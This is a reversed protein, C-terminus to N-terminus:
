APVRKKAASKRQVQPVVPKGETDRLGALVEYLLRLQEAEYRLVGAKKALRKREADAIGSGMRYRLVHIRLWISEIKMAVLRKKM